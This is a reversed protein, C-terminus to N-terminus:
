EPRSRPKASDGARNPRSISRPQYAVVRAPAASTSPSDTTAATPTPRRVQTQRREDAQGAEALIPAHVGFLQGSVEEDFAEHGLADGVGKAHRAFAVEGHEVAEVAVLPVDAEDGVPLLAASGEHGLGLALEGPAGADAEHGPARAGGICRDAHVGGELVARRHHQEHAVHGAIRAVTLGELLQVVAMEETRGRAAHGFPHLADVVRFANGFVDRAGKGGGHVAARARHHQHQGFVHQGARHPGTRQGPHLRGLGPAVRAGQAFEAAQQQCCLARQHQGAPAAPGRLGGSRQLAKGFVPLQRHGVGEPELVGEVVVVRLVGPIDPQADIRRQGPADALAIQQDGDPGPQTLGGGAAVRQDFRGGWGLFQHVDMGAGLLQVPHVLRHQGDLGAHVCRGAAQLHEGRRGLQGPGAPRLAAV